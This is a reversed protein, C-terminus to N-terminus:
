LKLSVLPMPIRVALSSWTESFVEAKEVDTSTLVGKENVLPPVSEKAHRKQGVDL